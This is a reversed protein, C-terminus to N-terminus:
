VVSKRDITPIETPNAVQVLLDTFEDHGMAFLDRADELSMLMLDATLLNISQQFVGVRHLAVQTLDPRFLSFSKRDGLGLNDLVASGLVVAGQEGAQPYSGAILLSDLLDDTAPASSGIVTYNAGNSEDFYYGWIRPRISSIGFVTDLKGLSKASLPVQRGASLQQVTIDPVTVLLLEATRTLSASMFQFSALLFIVGSFILFVCFNRGKKQWLSHLGYDLINLQQQISKNM